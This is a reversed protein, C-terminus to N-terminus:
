YNYFEEGQKQNDSNEFIIMLIVHVIVPSLNYITSISPVLADDCVCFNREILNLILYLCNQTQIKISGISM